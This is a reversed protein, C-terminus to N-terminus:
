KIKSMIKGIDRNDWDLVGEKTGDPALVHVKFDHIIHDDMSWYKDLDLLKAIAKTDALSGTLFHWNKRDVNMQKKYDNLVKPTDNEPDFTIIVFEANKGIKELEAQLEKLKSITLRPCVKKCNTYSMALIVRSKRWQSLKVEADNEDKWVMSENLIEDTGAAFVASVINISFFLVLFLNKFLM